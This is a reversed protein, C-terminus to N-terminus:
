VRAIKHKDTRIIANINITIIDSNSLTNHHTLLFPHSGTDLKAAATKYSNNVPCM